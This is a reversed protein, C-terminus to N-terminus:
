ATTRAERAESPRFVLQMAADIRRKVERAETEESAGLFDRTLDAVLAYPTDRQSGRAAARLVLHTTPDLGRRFTNVISRKGVGADGLILM